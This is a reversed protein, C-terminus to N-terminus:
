TVSGERQVLYQNLIKRFATAKKQSLPIMSDDVLIIDYGEIKKVAFLNVVFSKHPMTFDYQEMESAIDTIKRQLHWLRENTHMIVQREMYEFYLIQSTNIRIIGEKAIFQLEQEKKPIGYLCAEDLQAFLESQSIPKLLYAFAHVGFAFISYDSYNTIYILKVQTDKARIAKATDIGNIGNMDIDLLIIDYRKESSLLEEGSTFSDIELEVSKYKKLIKITKELVPVEDDCVAIKIM